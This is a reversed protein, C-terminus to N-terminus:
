QHDDVARGLLYPSGDRLLTHAQGELHDGRRDFAALLQGALQQGERAALGQLRFDDVKRFGQRMDALHEFPGQASIDLYLRESRIANTARANVRSLELERQQMETDIRPVGHRVAAKKGERNTMHAKGALRFDIPQMAFEDRYFQHITADANRRLDKGADEIRVERGLTRSLPGPQTEALHVTEGFLRTSCRDDLALEPATGRDADIQRRGLLGYLRLSLVRDERVLDLALLSCCQEHFVILVNGAYRGGVKLLEPVGDFDGQISRVRQLPELTAVRVIQYKGIKEHGAAHGAKLKGPDHPAVM